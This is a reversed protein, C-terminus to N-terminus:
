RESEPIHIAAFACLGFGDPKLHAPRLAAAAHGNLNVFLTGGDASLKAGYTGAPTYGHAREMPEALFAIAKRRGTAIEYQLVPTGSRFAQGHAGPLYYVFREDPSLVSVATYEGALWTPGLMKVEGTAVHLRFLQHTGHTTGYVAGDRTERTASRMGPSKGLSATTREIGKSEPAYKWLAGEGNFVISGDRGLAIARNFSIAGDASQFVVKRDSLSLGYLANGAGAELNCWWVDRDRDLISTATCRRPPLSAFVEAQGTRPDYRYLQGGPLEETWRFKPLKAGNGDNLTCSFYIKGDSGEDIRAHVKSWAPQGDRPPVLKNMDVVQRLEKRDPFWRYLFCRADGGADNGHDGIACYVTGDGAVCIDGWSSWLRRRAAEPGLDRHFALEVTPPTKGVHFPVAGEVKRISDPVNLFGDSRLTVTGRSAGQLEPPWEQAVAPAALALCAALDFANMLRLYWARLLFPVRAYM